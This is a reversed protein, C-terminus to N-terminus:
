RGAISTIEITQPNRSPNAVQRALASAKLKKWIGGVPWNVIASSSFQTARTAKKM